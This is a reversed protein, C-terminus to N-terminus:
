STIVASSPSCANSFSLVSFGSRMTSSMMIGFSSPYSTHLAILDLGSVRCM